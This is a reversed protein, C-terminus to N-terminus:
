CHTTEQSEEFTRNLNLGDRPDRVGTLGRLLGCCATTFSRHVQLVLLDDQLIHVLKNGAQIMCLHDLVPCAQAGVSLRHAQLQGMM